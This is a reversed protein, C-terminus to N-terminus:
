DGSAAEELMQRAHALSAESADGSLMRAIEAVRGEGEVRRFTTEPEEGGSKSAIYHVQAPAAVQALHTVVIVQHTRSLDALVDALARAATGGVGADVEDFVLTEVADSSGQVVKVALMVRSVEGGSAIKALPRATMREGPRFLFEVKDPGSTGWQDFDREEVQCELSAGQLELRGMQETVQAAFDPAAARRADHLARGAEVLREKADDLRKRAEAMQGDFGEVAQVTAAAERRAELVEAMGPGWTRMLGQLAAMREQMEALDAEDFDIGDRYRSVDRAVDEAIYSAERLSQALPALQADVFSASELLQAASGLSDLAGGDGSLAGQAGEVARMLSEANEVKPLKEALEEYEGEAPDVEGIRRLVYRATEVQEESLRSAAEIREAEAQCSRYDALAAAYAEKPAAVGDAMWDDLIALHNAPKLLRQHEHQGCLDISSGVVQSLRSVPAISGNLHVRSRGDRSLTRTAVIGDDEGDLDGDAAEGPGEGSAGDGDIFLRAQVQLKSAGERVMGAEGREGAILKLASLLATKGAGTEGTIATLGPAPRLNAERILAVNQVSLEDIM